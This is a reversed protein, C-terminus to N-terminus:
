GSASTSPSSGEETSPSPGEETLALPGLGARAAGDPLLADTETPEPRSKKRALDLLKKFWYTNLCWHLVTAMVTLYFMPRAEHGLVSTCGGARLFIAFAATIAVVRAILFCLILLSGCITFPLTNTQGLGNLFWTVHLPVTSAENVLMAGMFWTLAHMTLGALFFVLINVHHLLMLGSIPRIRLWADSVLLMVLDYSLFSATLAVGLRLVADERAPLMCAGSPTQVWAYVGFSGSVAAHIAAVVRDCVEVNATLIPKQDKPPRLMRPIPSHWVALFICGWGVTGAVLATRVDALGVDNIDVFSQRLQPM